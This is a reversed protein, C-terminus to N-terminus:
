KPRDNRESMLYAALLTSETILVIIVSLRGWIINDIPNNIAGLVIAAYFIVWYIRAFVIMQRSRRDMVKFQSWLMINGIALIMVMAATIPLTLIM